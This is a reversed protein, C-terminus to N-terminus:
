IELVLGPCFKCVGQAKAEFAEHLKVAYSLIVCFMDTEQERRIRDALIGAYSRLPRLFAEPLPMAEAHCRYKWLSSRVGGVNM